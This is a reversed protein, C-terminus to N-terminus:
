FDRINGPRTQHLAACIERGSRATTRAARVAKHVCSIQSCAAQHRLVDNGSVRCWPALHPWWCHPALPTSGGLAYFSRHFCHVRRLWFRGAASTSRLALEIAVKCVAQHSWTSQSIAVQLRTDRGVVAVQLGRVGRACYDRQLWLFETAWM